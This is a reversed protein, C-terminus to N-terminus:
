NSDKDRVGFVVEVYVHMGDVLWKGNIDSYIVRSLFERVEGNDFKVHMRCLHNKMLKFGDIKIVNVPKPEPRPTRRKFWNAPVIKFIINNM